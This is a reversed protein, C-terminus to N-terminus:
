KRKGINIKRKECQFDNEKVLFSFFFFLKTNFQLNFLEGKEGANFFIAGTEDFM